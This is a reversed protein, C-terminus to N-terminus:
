SNRNTYQRSEENMLQNTINIVYSLVTNGRAYAEGSFGWSPSSAMLASGGHPRQRWSPASAMLAGLATHIREGSEFAIDLKSKMTRDRHLKSCRSSLAGAAARCPRPQLRRRPPDREPPNGDFHIYLVAVCHMRVVFLDTAMKSLDAGRWAGCCQAIINPM